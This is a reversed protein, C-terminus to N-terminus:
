SLELFSVWRVRQSVYAHFSEPALGFQVQDAVFATQWGARNLQYSCLIDEGINVQPWGGIANVADRRMVYGSGHCMSCGVSDRVPELVHQLVNADQALVDGEPINYCYQPPSVVALEPSRLLHPVITSLWDMEPIMDADLGAIFESGGYKEGSMRIGFDLNGAKYYHPLGSRKTRNLHIVPQIGLEKGKTTNFTDIESKLDLNNADDLVFLRYHQRPYDQVAAGAVTDMVVEVDEGCTSEPTLLCICCQSILFLMRSSSM